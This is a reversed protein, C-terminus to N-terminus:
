FQEYLKDIAINELDMIAKSLNIAKREPILLKANNLYKNYLDDWSAPNEPEGKALEVEASCSNGDTETITVTAGRRDPYLKDWKESTLLQVKETLDQIQKNNIYEEKYKDAGADQETLALAISFPISFRAGSVTTPNKIGALRIAAPYTECKIESIGNINIKNVLELAADIPGNTHRCAAHLKDYIKNIEYKEGLGATLLGENVGDATAKFFGADGEFIKFPGRFGDKAIVSSLLGAMAAKGPTLPKVNSGHIDQNTQILGGSQLGAMGLSGITDEHGLGLIKAAAAAAGFTGCTGTIHFGRELSSPNIAMGLRIMIEYGVVIGTIMQKTTAGSLEAAALSAPIIVTGPHLAAYRHGDDMDLAHACAANVLAANVAPIKDGTNIITAEEAGGLKSYYDVIFKPFPLLKYGAMSLGVVDMIRQKAQKIVVDPLKEYSASCIYDAYVSSLQEM